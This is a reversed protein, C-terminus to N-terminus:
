KTLENVESHMSTFWGYNHIYYPYEVEAETNNLLNATVSRNDVSCNEVNRIEGLVYRENSTETITYTGAFMDKTANSGNLTNGDVDVMINYSHKVGAADTGEVHYIFSPASEGKIIESVKSDITLKVHKMNLIVSDENTLHNYNIGFTIDTFNKYGSPVSVCNWTYDFWHLENVVVKGDANTTLPDGIAVKKGNVDKYM